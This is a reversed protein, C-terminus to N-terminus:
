LEVRKPDYGHRRYLRFNDRCVTLLEPEQNVIEIVRSFHDVHPSLTSALNILLGQPHVPAQELGLVVPAAPDDAYQEHPIFREPRFRWLLEDLQDCQTESSCRIFVRMDHQWGKAALQCAARLRGLPNDDPLVYFEIRTM